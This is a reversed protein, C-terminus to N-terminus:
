GINIRIQQGQRIHGINNVNISIYWEPYLNYMPNTNFVDMKKFYQIREEGYRNKFVTLFDDYAESDVKTLCLNFSGNPTKKISVVLLLLSLM